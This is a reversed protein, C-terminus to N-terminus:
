FGTWPFMWDGDEVEIERQKRWINDGMTGTNIKIKSNKEITELLVQKYMWRGVWRGKWREM